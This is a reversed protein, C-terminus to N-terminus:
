AVHFASFIFSSIFATNTQCIHIDCWHVQIKIKNFSCKRSCNETTILIFEREVFLSLRAIFISISSNRFTKGRYAHNCHESNSHALDLIIQKGSVHVM